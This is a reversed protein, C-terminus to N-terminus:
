PLQGPRAPRLFSPIDLQRDIVYAESCWHGDSIRTAEINAAHENWYCAGIRTVVDDGIGCDIVVIFVTLPESV